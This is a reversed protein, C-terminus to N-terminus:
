GGLAANVANLLAAEYAATRVIGVSAVETAIQTALVDQIAAPLGSPGSAIWTSIVDTM